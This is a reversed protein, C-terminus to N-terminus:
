ATTYKGVFHAYPSSAVMAGFPGRFRACTSIYIGAVAVNLHFLSFITVELPLIYEIRPWLKNGRLLPLSM